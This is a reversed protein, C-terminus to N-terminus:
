KMKVNHFGNLFTGQKIRERNPYCKAIKILYVFWFKGPFTGRNSKKKSLRFRFLKLGKNYELVLYQIKKRKIVTFYFRINYPSGASDEHNLEIVSM